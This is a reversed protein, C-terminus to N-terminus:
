DNDDEEPTEDEEDDSPDVGELYEDPILGQKACMKFPDAKFADYDDDVMYMIGRSLIKRSQNSFLMDVIGESNGTDMTTIIFEFPYLTVDCGLVLEMPYQLPMPRLAITITKDDSMDRKMQVETFVKM